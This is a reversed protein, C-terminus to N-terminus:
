MILMQRKEIPTIYEISFHMSTIFYDTQEIIVFNLAGSWINMKNLNINLRKEIDKTSKIPYM